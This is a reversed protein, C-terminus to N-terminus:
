KPSDLVAAVKLYGKNPWRARVARRGNVWLERFVWKGDRVDPIEAAWVKKGDLEVAKWGAIRRGGSLVTKGQLAGALTLGSDDHGLVLPQYFIHLGPGFYITAPVGRTDRGPTRSERVAQLARAATAFPGDNKNATPSSLRGSWQDSGGPAVYFVAPAAVDAFAFGLVACFVLTALCQSRM